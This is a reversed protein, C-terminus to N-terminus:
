VPMYINKLYVGIHIPMIDTPVCIVQVEKVGIEGLINQRVIVDERLKFLFLGYRESDVSLKM